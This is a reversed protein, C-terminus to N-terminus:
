QSLRYCGLRTLTRRRHCNCCVVECKEIEAEVTRWAWGQILKSVHARKKGHVHDFELVVVDDEGCDVCPHERLYDLIKVQNVRTAAENRQRVVSLQKEKNKAYYAKFREHSCPRCHTQLGDRARRNKNFESSEKPVKCISCVKM